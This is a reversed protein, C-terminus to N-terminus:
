EGAGTAPPKRRTLHWARCYACEYTFLVSSMGNMAANARAATESAYGDKSGCSREIDRDQAEDVGERGSLWWKLPDFGSSPM